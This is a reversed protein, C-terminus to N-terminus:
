QKTTAPAGAMPSAAAGAKSEQKKKSTERFPDMLAIEEGPKLGAAVVMTSESRKALQIVRQEYRDGTKVFVVPKGDREFVAQAPIYIANPIKEVIVQVDALLGPRLLINIGSDEEPPPPLKAEELEKQTFRSGGRGPFGMGPAPFGPFGGRGGEAVQGRAQAAAGGTEGRGAAPAQGGRSGEAAPTRGQATM